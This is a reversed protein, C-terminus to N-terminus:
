REQSLALAGYLGSLDGHKALRLEPLDSLARALSKLKTEVRELPIAKENFLAGGLVVCDPSWHLITNYLGYAFQDGVEAWVGPDKITSSPQGYKRGLGSGSVIEEWEMAGDTAGLLQHGVEFGHAARDLKGDVVRAGGVGTGVSLYAVISSGVGAGTRAEGLAELAADNEFTVPAGLAETFAKKIDKGVWDGLNPSRLMESKDPSLLGAVGIVASTIPRENAIVLSSRVFTDLLEEFSSPTDLIVPEEFSDRAESGAIRTHTGGINGVIVM